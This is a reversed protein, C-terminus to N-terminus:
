RHDSRGPRRAITTSATSTEILMSSQGPDGGGLLPRHQGRHHRVRQHLGDDNMKKLFAMLEVPRPARSTAETAQGSRGNDNNVVDVGLGSLWTEFFWRSTKLVFPKDSVGADKLAKAQEYSRRWRARRDDPDLGAKAWHSKNYYLIPTSVNVYAPYLM